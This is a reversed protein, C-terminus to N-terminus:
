ERGRGRALDAAYTFARAEHDPEIYGEIEQAVQERVIKEVLDAIEYIPKGTNEREYIADRIDQQYKSM